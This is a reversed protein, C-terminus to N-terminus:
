RKNDKHQEGFALSSRKKKMEEEENKKEDNIEEMQVEWFSETEVKENNNQGIRLWKKIKRLSLQGTDGQPGAVACLSQFFFVSFFWSVAMVLMLFHGMQIYSLVDSPMM